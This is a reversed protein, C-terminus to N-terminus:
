KDTVNHPRIWIEVIGGDYYCVVEIAQNAMLVTMGANFRREDVQNSLDFDGHHTLGAERMARIRDNCDQPVESTSPLVDGSAAMIRGNGDENVGSKSGFEGTPAGFRDKLTHQSM